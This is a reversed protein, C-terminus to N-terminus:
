RESPAKPTLMPSKSPRAPRTLPNEPNLASLLAESMHFKEALAERVSTYSLAPFEKM